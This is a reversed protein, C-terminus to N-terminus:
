ARRLTVDKTRKIVAFRETDYNSWNDDLDGTEISVPDDGISYPVSEHTAQL